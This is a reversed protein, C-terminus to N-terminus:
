FITLVHEGIWTARCIQSTLVQWLEASLHKVVDVQPKAGGAANRSEAELFCLWTTTRPYMSKYLVWSSSCWPRWAEKWEVISCLGACPARVLMEWKGFAAKLFGGTRPSLSAPKLISGNRYREEGRCVAQGKLRVEWCFLDGPFFQFQM